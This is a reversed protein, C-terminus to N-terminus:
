NLPYTLIAKNRKQRQIFLNAKITSTAMWTTVETISIYKVQQKVPQWNLPLQKTM